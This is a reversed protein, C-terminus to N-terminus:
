NFNVNLGINLVKQIPYGLGNGGMEVDWLRFSSFSLLNTANLYVRFTSTRLRKQLRQPLTYGIEVQKLRLFAGNRMFWTSTQTDNENLTPSLRPWLAYVDRNDESWHSDAYAKLLQNQPLYGPLENESYRYEVFPATAKADIWFSENALGQFFASIDFNKYGMSFGFGYVVEPMTPNGIPVQDAATIQGDDNVDLYKIDGGGYEGFNQRPSNLAEEDDTFLKEAIYGYTQYIPRGVHYRYAEAYKPDEYVKYKSTAYTFNSMVSAWFTHQFYQKYDMSIDVGNGSAAGVNARIPASFGAELPISARTMLINDRYQSFYEADVNLKDFLSFELAFNKQTSTEWTIDRNSYRTITIGDLTYQTNGPDRGFTAQKGADNMNLNSLYFFRDDASGIADNGIVGYTARLRLSSVVPKLPTWFKENSVTWALGVSPFFGFRHNEDFRESGNYGFNFEAYYRKDYDYTLRGSLGLNRYPLSKQLDGANADLRTQAMFVLLGSLGQKKFTRDYNLRSELYFSTSITNKGENYGLYETGKDPNINTLFYSGSLQDYGSLTYWFPNYFRSVDFYSQRNTNVMASFSLGQTIVTLDQKLELQALMLSRSYEKYGKVMDAYPNIYQGADYNGFMIHKVHAHQADVPYFAPFLAPNSRMVKKYMDAGGDIPGSYDDFNGSLRVTLETSKTLDINVNSRLTYSNLQINNNFNNRGDVRMLGNDRNYSGSVYYRAVGGGGSVSLNFRQNTTYDKFMTKRWDNAPYVYPNKGAATNNIKEDSYLLAGLPDRTLTAENSLKMYTVPDALEVNQTPMSFSNEVRFSLHAKGVAGEKTTVLIVGNAARSGYLATATADKLISFSSIDDVQLRALDTTTLEIGDILILPDKKYGFTTVGRVFFDANDQGPEGSRQYAIIGAARGALATTLNSSPVKLDSPNVSTVSGVMDSRKQKGFAVVVTEELQNAAPHLTVNIVNGRGVAIERTEFGIMSFVLVANDPVELIYRGNLDTATGIQKNSKVYVTVGPLPAGTSDAVLGTIDKQPTIM